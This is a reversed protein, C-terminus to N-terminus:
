NRKNNGKGNGKTEHNTFVWWFDGCSITLLGSITGWEKNKKYSFTPIVLLQFLGFRSYPKNWKSKIFCGWNRPKFRGNTRPSKSWKRTFYSFYELDGCLIKIILICPPGFLQHLMQEQLTWSLYPLLDKEGGLITNTSEADSMYNENEDKINNIAILYVENPLIKDVM